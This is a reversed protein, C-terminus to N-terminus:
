ANLLRITFMVAPWVRLTDPKVVVKVTFLRVSVVPLKVEGANSLMVPPRVNVAPVNVAPALVLIAPLQVLLPPVNVGPVPATVKSPAPAWLM